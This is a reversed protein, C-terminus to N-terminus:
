IYEILDARGRAVAKWLDYLKSRRRAQTIVNLAHDKKSAGTSIDDLPHGLADYCFARLDEMGVRDGCLVLYLKRELEARERRIDDCTPERVPVGNRRRGRLYTVLLPVAISGIITLILQWAEYTM